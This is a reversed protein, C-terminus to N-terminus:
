QWLEEVWEENVLLGAPCPLPREAFASTAPDSLPHLDSALPPCTPPLTLTPLPSAPLPSLSGLWDLRGQVGMGLAQIWQGVEERGEPGARERQM